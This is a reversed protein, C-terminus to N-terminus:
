LLIETSKNVAIVKGTNNKKSIEDQLTKAFACKDKFNGHVLAIKDFKYESYYKLLHEYQMHSSM